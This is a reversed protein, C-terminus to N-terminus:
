IDSVETVPDSVLYFVRDADEIHAIAEQTFHSVCMIGSGVVVLSGKDSLTSQDNLTVEQAIKQWKDQMTQTM